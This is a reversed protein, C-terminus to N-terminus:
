APQQDAKTGRAALMRASTDFNEERAVHQLDCPRSGECPLILDHGRRRQWAVVRRTSFTRGDRLRDVAYRIEEDPDGPRLFYSHLSHILYAPDVTRVGAIMAQAAVQGGFVRQRDTDSQMGRFLNIDIEELDLLEALDHTGPPM